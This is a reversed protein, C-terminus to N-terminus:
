PLTRNQLLQGASTTHITKSRKSCSVQPPRGPARKLPIRMINHTSEHQKRIGEVQMHRLGWGELKPIAQVSAELQGHQRIGGCGKGAVGM